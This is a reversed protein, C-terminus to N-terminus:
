KLWLKVVVQLVNGWIIIGLFKHLLKGSQFLLCDKIFGKVM